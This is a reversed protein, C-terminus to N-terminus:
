LGHYGYSFYRRLEPPCDSAIGTYDWPRDRLAEFIQPFPFSSPSRSHLAGLNVSELTFTQGDRMAVVLRAWFGGKKGLSCSVHVVKIQSRDYVQSVALSHARYHIATPSVCVSSGAGLLSLPGLVALVFAATATGATSMNSAASPGVLANLALVGLM